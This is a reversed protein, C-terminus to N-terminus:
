GKKMFWRVQEVPWDKSAEIVRVRSGNAQDILAHSCFQDGIESVHLDTCVLIARGFGGCLVM